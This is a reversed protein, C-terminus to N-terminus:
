HACRARDENTITVGRHLSTGAAISLVTACSLQTQAFASRSLLTLVAPAAALGALLARKRSVVSGQAQERLGESGKTKGPDKLNRGENDM